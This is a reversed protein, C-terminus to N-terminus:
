KMKRVLAPGPAWYFLQGLLGALSCQDGGDESASTYCPPVLLLPETREYSSFHMGATLPVDFM